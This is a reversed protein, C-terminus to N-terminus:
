KEQLSLAAAPDYDKMSLELRMREVMELEESVEEALRSFYTAQIYLGNEACDKACKEHLSVVSKEWEYWLDFASKLASRRTSNDVDMKTYNYWSKPIIGDFAPNDFKLLKGTMRMYDRHLCAFMDSEELYRHRQLRALNEFGLFRMYDELDRHYMLGKLATTAAESFYNM